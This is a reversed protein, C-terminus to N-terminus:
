NSSGTATWADKVEPHIMMSMKIIDIQKLLLDQKNELDKAITSIIQNFVIAKSLNDEASQLSNLENNCKVTAAAERKEKSTQSLVEPDSTMAISYSIGYASKMNSVYRQANSKNTISKLLIDTIREKAAQLQALQRNIGLFGLSAIPDEVLKVNDRLDKAEEVYKSCEEDKLLNLAETEM